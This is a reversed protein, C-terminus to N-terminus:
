IKVQKFVKLFKQFIDFVKSINQLLKWLKSVFQKVFSDYVPAM